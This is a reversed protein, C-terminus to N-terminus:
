CRGSRGTTACSSARAAHGAAAPRRRRSRDAARGEARAAAARPARDGAQKKRTMADRDRRLRPRRFQLLCWGHGFPDALQVIRGWGAERMAGEQMAGAAVARILAADLDDVVVDCHMPTWHRLMTACRHAPRRHQRRGQAVPLDAVEAGLLEVRTRASAAAPTCASPPATSRKAGRRPGARRHQAATEHASCGTMRCRM